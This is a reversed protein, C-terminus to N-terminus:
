PVERTGHIPVPIAPELLHVGAVFADTWLSSAASIAMLLYRWGRVIERSILLTM